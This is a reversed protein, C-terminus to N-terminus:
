LAVLAFFAIVGRGLVLLGCSATQLEALEALTAALVRRVFLHFLLAAM